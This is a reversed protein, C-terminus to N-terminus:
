RRVGKPVAAPVGQTAQQHKRQHSGLGAATECVMGCIECENLTTIKELEGSEFVADEFRGCRENGNLDVWFSFGCDPSVRINKAKSNDLTKVQFQGVSVPNTLRVEIARYTRIM